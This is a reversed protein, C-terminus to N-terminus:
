QLAILIPILAQGTRLPRLAKGIVAGFAKLPDTATMAHGPTPSTTLLDGVAIPLFQADVRCFVKGMLALPMRINDTQHKKDLVIGPKCEGAGSIVGAVKKDYAEKSRQLKGDQTLVMVTGPEINKSDAIDFDEACDANEFDIDGRKADLTLTVRNQDDRLIIKGTRNGGGIRAIATGDEHNALFRITTNGLEDSIDIIGGRGNVNQAGAGGDLLISDNGKDNRVALLGAKGNGDTIESSHAGLYLGAATSRSCALVNKSGDRVSIYNGGSPDNSVNMQPFGNLLISDSGKDNRVAIFGAKFDGEDVERSHAGLYLGAYKSNFSCALVNKSKNDKNDRISLPTGEEWIGTLKIAEKENDDYMGIKGGGSGKGGLSISGDHASLWITSSQGASHLTVPNVSGPLFFLAGAIGNGGLWIQGAPPRPFTSSPEGGFLRITTVKDGIVGSKNIDVTGNFTEGM